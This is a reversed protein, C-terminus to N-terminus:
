QFIWKRDVYQWTKGRGPVWTMALNRLPLYMWPRTGTLHRMWPGSVILKYLASGDKRYSGGSQGSFAVRNIIFSHSIGDYICGPGTLDRMRPGHEVCGPSMDGGPWLNWCWAGPYM